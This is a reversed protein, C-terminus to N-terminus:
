VSEKKLERSLLDRIISDVNAGGHLIANVGLCIPMDVDHTKAYTEVARATAVGESVTRRSGMIEELTRGQGFEFGLSFNRSTMSSCTLVLDGLGALGLFTEPKAGRAVGLRRIEAIGRTMVAAKANQGLKRGEVIGCAIAIVNKLAGAIEVGIVDDSMYPRFASGRISNAWLEGAADDVSVALTIATPLGKVTESAFSPGSLVAYPHGPAAEAVVESLLQGTAVEIGKAANVLPVNKPLHPAFKKLAERLFQAPTALVVLEAGEVAKGTDATAKLKEHLREGPLYIDNEHATNIKEALGADRAYITVDRGARCFIEALATGWSGCGIVAIKNLADTM